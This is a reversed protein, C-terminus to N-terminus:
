FSFNVKGLDSELPSPRVEVFRCCVGADDTLEVPYPYLKDPTAIVCAFYRVDFGDLDIRAEITKRDGLNNNNAVWRHRSYYAEMKSATENTFKSDRLDYVFSKDNTLWISNSEKYEIAGLAASAHMVKIRKGDSLYLHAWFSKPSNLAVYLKDNELKLYVKNGDGVANQEADKWEIDTLVGDTQIPNFNCAGFLLGVFIIKLNLMFSFSGERSHIEISWVPGYVL